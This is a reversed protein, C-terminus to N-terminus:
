HGLVKLILVSSIIIKQFLVIKGLVMYGNVIANGPPSIKGPGPLLLLQNGLGSSLLFLSLFLSLSLSPGAAEVLGRLHAECNVCWWDATGAELVCVCECVGVFVGWLPKLISLVM